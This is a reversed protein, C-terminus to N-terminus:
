LVTKYLVKVISKTCHYLIKLTCVVSSAIVFRGGDQVPGMRVAFFIERAPLIIYYLKSLLAADRQTTM